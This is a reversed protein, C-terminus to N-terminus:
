GQSELTDIRSELIRIQDEFRIRDLRHVEEIKAAYDKMWRHVLGELKEKLPGFAAGFRFWEDKCKTSCFKRNPRTQRFMKPCNACRKVPYVKEDRRRDRLEAQRKPSVPM